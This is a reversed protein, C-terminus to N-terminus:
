CARNRSALFVMGVIMGVTVLVSIATEISLTFKSDKGIEM